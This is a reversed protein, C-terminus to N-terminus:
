FLPYLGLKTPTNPVFTGYTTAYEQITIVDGVSLPITITLTPATASVVYDYGSQLIVGNVYVLVSQYNSSTFDYTNNLNFTPTSIASYTTTITTNNEEGLGEHVRRDFDLLDEKSYSNALSLM